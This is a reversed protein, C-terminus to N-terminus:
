EPILEAARAYAEDQVFPAIEMEPNRKFVHWAVAFPRLAERLSDREAKAAELREQLNRIHALAADPIAPQSM